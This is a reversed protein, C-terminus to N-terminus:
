SEVADFGNVCLGITDGLCGLLAEAVGVGVDAVVFLWGVGDPVFLRADIAVLSSKSGGVVTRSATSTSM